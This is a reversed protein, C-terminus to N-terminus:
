FDDMAVMKYNLYKGRLDGLSFVNVQWGQRM